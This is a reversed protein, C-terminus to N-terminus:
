NVDHTMLTFVVSIRIQRALFKMSYWTKFVSIQNTSSTAAFNSFAMQMKHCKLTIFKVEALIGNIQRSLQHLSETSATPRSNFSFAANILTCYLHMYGLSESLYDEDEPSTQYHNVSNAM